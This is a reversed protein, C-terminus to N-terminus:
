KLLMNESAINRLRELADMLSFRNRLLAALKRYIRLRENQSFNMMMKAYRITFSSYHINNFSTSRSAM